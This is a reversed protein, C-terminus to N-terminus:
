LKAGLISTAGNCWDDRMGDVSCSTEGETVQPRSKGGFGINVVSLVANAGLVTRAPVEGGKETKILWFTVWSCMVIQFKIHKCPLVPLATTSTSSVLILPTYIQLMFFGTQREFYFEIGAISDNRTGVRTRRKLEPSIRDYSHTRVLLFQALGLKKNISAARYTLSLNCASRSSVHPLEDSM